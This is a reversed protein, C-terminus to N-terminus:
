IECLFSSGWKPRLTRLFSYVLFQVCCFSFLCDFLLLCVFWFVNNKSGRHEPCDGSGPPERTYPPQTLTGSCSCILYLFRIFIFLVLIYESTSFLVMLFRIFSFLVMIYVSTSFLVMLYWISSFLVMIYVATTFLILIYVTTSLLVM